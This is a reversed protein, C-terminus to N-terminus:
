IYSRVNYTEVLSVKFLQLSDATLRRIVVIHTHLLVIVQFVDNIGNNSPSTIDTLIVNLRLIRHVM